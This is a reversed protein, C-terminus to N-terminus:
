AGDGPNWKMGKIDATELTNFSPQARGMVNKLDAHRAGLLLFCPM